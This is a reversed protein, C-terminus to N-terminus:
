NCFIDSNDVKPYYYVFANCHESSEVIPGFTYCCDGAMQKDRADVAACGVSPESWQYACTWWVGGGMPPMVDLGFKMPPEDWRDSEYFMSADTPQQDTMGDWTFISFKRGRSHFHGNAGVIHVANNKFGCTGSYSPNPNSRCVRINQQTAFLTGLEAPSADSSRYFNVGVKGKTPTKQTTANVYHSQVMLKEGPHMRMAVGSPLQFNTIPSDPNSNQSNAVLPWDAWNSSKWCETSVPPGGHVVTGSYAGLTVPDGAAPDLKVITKVRFINLHHTGPNQAIEVRSVWYDAGSALDPTDVFYCDQLETGAPVATEPLRLSFGSSATLNELSWGSSGCATLGTVAALSL